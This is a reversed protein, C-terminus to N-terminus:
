LTKPSILQIPQRGHKRYIQFDSDLTCVAHGANLESMRVVCADALSVGSDVYKRLLAQVAAANDALSFTISLAGRQLLELIASQAAPTRKLLFLSETLVPECVLLPVALHRVQEVAWDHHKEDRDMFAVLPGTDIIARNIEAL